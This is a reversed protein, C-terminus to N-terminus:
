WTKKLQLAMFRGLPSANPPDYGVPFVPLPSRPTSPILVFPPNKDTLNQIDLAVTVRKLFDAAARGDLRYSLQLDLTTWSAVKTAPTSLPNKYDGSHNLSLASEFGGLAWSLGGRLRLDIPEGIV